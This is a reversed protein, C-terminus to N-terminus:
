SSRDTCRHILFEKVDLWRYIRSFLAPENNQVWRYKWVPDKVSAAVAGTERISQLLKFINVGAVQLGHAMGERLEAVARQDMYSMARRLPRGEQDVLVLGQMQSCFSIGEVNHPDTGTRALLKRTTSCMATWWELPDQEAGGNELIYLGYTAMESDILEIERNIAFLCSKLGTTGVDYTIVLITDSM